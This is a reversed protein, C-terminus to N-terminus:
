ADTFLAQMRNHAVNVKRASSGSHAAVTYTPQLPHHETGTDTETLLGRVREM